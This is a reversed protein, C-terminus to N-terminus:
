KGIGLERAYYFLYQQAIGAIKGFKEAAFAQLEKLTTEKHFYFFEMVRKVWVDIPFADYKEMSFLLICDSVKPGVGQLKILERRAEETSRDKLSYIDVEKKVITAATHVIYKSRYGTHSQQIEDIRKEALSQPTPFDYYKRGKYEGILRGYRKSLSEISKKIMSISRNSSIIFSLLTEWVDQRLIRIGYGNAIAAQMIPDGECLRRKIEGYDRNLDFYEVWIRFFDDQTAPDFIVQNGSKQVNLVKGKAVGTYSGNEERNWRFCQGCEFIHSLEFNQLDDVIVKGSEERVKYKLSM